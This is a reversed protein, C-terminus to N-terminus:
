HPQTVYFSGSNGVATTTARVSRASGTLSLSGTASVDGANTQQNNVSIGGLCDSCAFGTAANGMATSAVFADYGHDGTFSAVSEVGGVDNFQTNDLSVTPGLNGALVTNGVGYASVSAGGFEYSSEEGQARVYAANSQDTVVDLSAGENTINANNATATAATVTNQSNGFATFETGRVIDGTNTQSVGLAATSGGVGVSTVNNAV